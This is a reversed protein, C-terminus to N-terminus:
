FDVVGPIAYIEGQSNKIKKDPFIVYSEILPRRSIIDWMSDLLKYFATNNKFM